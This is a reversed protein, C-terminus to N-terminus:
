KEVTEGKKLSCNLKNDYAFDNDLDFKGHLCSVRFEKLVWAFALRSELSGIVVCVCVCVCVCV